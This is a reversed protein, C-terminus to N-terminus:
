YEDMEIYKQEVGIRILFHYFDFNNMITNGSICEESENINWEDRDDFTYLEPFKLRSIALHNHIYYIQKETLHQKQIVFSSCSSNAVFGNRYKM